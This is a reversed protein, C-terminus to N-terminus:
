PDVRKSVILNQHSSNNNCKAADKLKDWNKEILANKKARSWGKIKREYSIALEYDNFRQCFVM